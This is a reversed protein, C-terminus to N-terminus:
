LANIASLIQEDKFGKLNPASGKCTAV